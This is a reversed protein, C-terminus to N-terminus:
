LLVKEETAGNSAKILNLCVVEVIEENVQKLDNRFVQKLDSGKNKPGFEM